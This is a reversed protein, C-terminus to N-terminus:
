GATDCSQVPYCGQQSFTICRPHPACPIIVDLGDRGEDCGVTGPCGAKAVDERGRRKDGIPESARIARLILFYDRRM